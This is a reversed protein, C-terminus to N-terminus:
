VRPRDGGIRMFQRLNQSLQSKREGQNTHQEMMDQTM